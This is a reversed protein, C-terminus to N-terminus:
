RSDVSNAILTIKQLNSKKTDQTLHPAQNYRNRIKTRKRIYVKMDKKFGLYPRCFKNMLGKGWISYKSCQMM